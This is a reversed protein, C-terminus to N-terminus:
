PAPSLGRLLVMLSEFFKKPGGAEEFTLKAIEQVARIQLPMALTRASDVSDPEDSALAILNAVLGPAEKVLAIAHQIAVTSAETDTMNRSFVDVLNDIDSMHNRMLVTIDELALGRVSFEGGKFSVTSRAPKYDALSM